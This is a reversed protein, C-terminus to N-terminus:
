PLVVSSLWAISSFRMADFPISAQNSALSRSRSAPWRSTPSDVVSLPSGSAASSTVSRQSRTSSRAGSDTHMVISSAWTSSPESAHSRTSCSSSARRAVSVEGDARSRHRRQRHAPALGLALRDHDLLVRQGEGSLLQVVEHRLEADIGRPGAAGTMAPGPRASRSRRGRRRARSGTPPSGRWAARRAVGPARGPRAARASRRRAREPLRRAPTSRTPGPRRGATPRSPPPSGGGARGRATPGPRRRRVERAPARGEGLGGLHMSARPSRTAPRSAGAPRRRSRGRM